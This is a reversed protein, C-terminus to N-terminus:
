PAVINAICYCYFFRVHCFNDGRMGEFGFGVKIVVVLRSDDVHDNNSLDDDDVALIGCFRGVVIASISSVM